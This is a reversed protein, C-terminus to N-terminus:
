VGRDAPIWTYVVLCAEAIVRNECRKKFCPTLPHHGSFHNLNELFFVPTKQFQLLRRRVERCGWLQLRMGPGFDLLGALEPM